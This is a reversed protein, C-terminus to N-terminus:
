KQIEPRGTPKIFDPEEGRVESVLLTNKGVFSSSVVHKQDSCWERYVTFVVATGPLNIGSIDSGGCRSGVIMACRFDSFDHTRINWWLTVSGTKIKMSIQGQKALTPFYVSHSCCHINPERSGYPTLWCWGQLQESLRIDEQHKAEM